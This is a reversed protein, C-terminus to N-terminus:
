RYEDAMARVTSAEHRADHLVLQQWQSELASLDGAAVVANWHRVRQVLEYTLTRVDLKSFAVAPMLEELCIPRAYNPPLPRDAKRVNLGVGTILARLENNEIVAETLIGGLKRGDVYLDNIPKLRVPIPTAARLTDACAIGAARTFSQLDQTAVGRPRDIVTLYIGADLPSLWTRGRNGRGATQQRAVIYAAERIRGDRLMSRALDNTSDVTDYYFAQM